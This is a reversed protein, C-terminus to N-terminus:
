VQQRRFTALLRIKLFLYIVLFAVLVTIGLSVKSTYNFYLNSLIVASAITQLIGYAISVGLHPQGFENSIFQYLHLRHAKFINEGRWIRHLITGVSDAGYVVLFLIYSFDGTKIILSYILYVILFAVSVSGVDGAFCKAKKRFNYIGFVISALLMFRILENDLAEVQLNAVYVSILVVITYIGHMGNIGDMFNYANIIGVAVIFASIWVFWPLEFMGIQNFLLAMSGFHIPLRIRNPLSQIDDWFSVVSIMILGVTFFPLPFGEWIFYTLYGLLYIIGGGRLTIEKHSSRENPKDIINFRDAIKFYLNILVLNILFILPYAWM